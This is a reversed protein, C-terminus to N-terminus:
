EGSLAMELVLKTAGPHVPVIREAIAALRREVARGVRRARRREVSRRDMPRGPPKLILMLWLLMEMLPLFPGREPVYLGVVPLLDAENLSGPPKEM